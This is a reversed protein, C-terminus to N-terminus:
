RSVSPPLRRSRFFSRIAPFDPKRERKRISTRAAKRGAHAEQVLREECHKLNIRGGLFVIDDVRKERMISLYESEKAYDGISNGLLFTYGALQAEAEAGAFM